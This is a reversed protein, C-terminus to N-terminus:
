QPLMVYHLFDERGIPSIVYKNGNKLKIVLLNSTKMTGAYMNYKGLKPSRFKGFYGFFGGSAFTRISGKLDDSAPPAVEIIDAKDIEISGLVKKIVISNNTIVYSKPAFFFTTVLIATTIFVIFSLYTISNKYFIAHIVPLILILVVIFSIMYVTTDTNVKFINM